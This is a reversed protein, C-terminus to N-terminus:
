SSPRSAQARDEAMLDDCAAMVERVQIQDM